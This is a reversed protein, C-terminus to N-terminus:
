PLLGNLIRFDDALDQEEGRKDYIRGFQEYTYVRVDDVFANKDSSIEINYDSQWPFTLEYAGATSVSIKKETEGGLKVTVNANKTEPKVYLEVHIESGRTMRGNLQQFIKKNDGIKAMPTGDVTEVSSGGQFKWGTKDLGFQGNYVCNNVYNRYVWLGYGMTNQQLVPALSRVYDDTEDEVIQTNYSFEATTDMYLLQEAYLKKGSREYLSGLTRETGALAAQASIRDYENRQGMSVSYMLATYDAGDCPFTAKHSYYYYSNDSTYVPDSDARVEMSLGPFVTQSQALLENLMQDHYEFFLAASAQKRYPIYIEQFSGFEEGYLESVEALTYHAALYDQYGCERAMRITTKKTYERGMNHVYDWFDEWTIFGGHFNSHASATEYVKQCYRIWMSRETGTKRTIGAFRSPLEAAGYYDWSYGIRLVVWLGHNEACQMVEDLRQFATENFEEMGEAPQFERWPVVLIISNFGDERIKEFNAAMDKDESGWYNIPWEDGFYTVSKLYAPKEAAYVTEETLGTMTVAWVLCTVAAAAIKKRINM